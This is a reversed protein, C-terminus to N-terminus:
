ATEEDDPKQKKARSIKRANWYNWAFTRKDGYKRTLELVEKYTQAAAYERMKNRKFTAAEEDTIERLQGAKEEPLKAATVNVNGCYPCRLDKEWVAFCKKCQKVIPGFDGSNKKKQVGSLSWQRDDAAKGHKRWNGVHDLILGRTKGPAPRLVRGIQQLWLGLSETPRLCIAVSALPIDTGESILDVSSLGHLRGDALAKIMWEREQRRLSGHITAWRYGAGKFSETVADAHELSACFAIAPENAALETYHEVASGIIKPKNVRAALQGAVFDGGSRRLGKLDLHEDFSYLVAPVLHGLDTLERVTPGIEMCEFLGGGEVGLGQGDLRIPTATVGLIRAKPFHALVRTWTAAGVHHAEDIIIFDYPEIPGKRLRRDLTQVSAVACSMREGKHGPAILGHEVDLNTLATSAQNLLEQRHVMILVRKGSAHAKKAMYAFTYTKGAGTPLVLLASKYLRYLKALNEVVRTQYPRLNATM